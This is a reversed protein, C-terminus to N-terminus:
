KKKKLLHSIPQKKKKPHREESRSIRPSPLTKFFNNIWKKVPKNKEGNQMQAHPSGLKIKKGKTTKKESKNQPRVAICKLSASFKSRREKGATCGQYGEGQKQKELFCGAATTRGKKEARESKGTGAGFSGKGLEPQARLPDSLSGTSGNGYNLKDGTGGVGRKRKGKEGRPGTQQSKFLVSPECPRDTM